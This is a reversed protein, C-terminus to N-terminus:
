RWKWWPPPEVGCERLRWFHELHGKAYEGMSLFGTCHLWNMLPWFCFEDAIFYVTTFERALRMLFQDDGRKLLTSAFDPLVEIAGEKILKHVTEPTACAGKDFLVWELNAKTGLISRDAREKVRYDQRSNLELQVREAEDLLRMTEHIDFEADLRTLAITSLIANWGDRVWGAKHGSDCGAVAKPGKLRWRMRM